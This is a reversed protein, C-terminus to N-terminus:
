EGTPPPRDRPDRRPADCGACEIRPQGAVTPGARRRGRGRGTDHAGPVQDGRAACASPRWWPWPKTWSRRSTSGGESRSRPGPSTSSCTSGREMRLIEQEIVQLDEAAVGKAETEERNMQVLMKIATLPNRLEHAMGAAIEGVEALSEARLVTRGLGRAVGYGLLLGALSRGLAGAGVCDWAVWNVTRDLAAEAREIEGSNFQELEQRVPVTETELIQNAGPATDDPNAALAPPDQWAKLYRGFSEELRGM